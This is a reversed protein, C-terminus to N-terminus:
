AGADRRRPPPPRESRVNRPSRQYRGGPSERAGWLPSSSSERSRRRRHDIFRWHSSAPRLSPCCLAAALSHRPGCDIGGVPLSTRLQALGTPPGNPCERCIQQCFGSRRQVNNSIAEARCGRSTCDAASTFSQPAVQRSSRLKSVTRSRQLDHMVIAYRTPFPSITSASPM